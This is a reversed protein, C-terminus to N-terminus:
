DVDLDIINVNMRKLLEERMSPYGKKLIKKAKETTKPNVLLERLRKVGKENRLMKRAWADKDELRERLSNYVKKSIFNKQILYDWAHANLPVVAYSNLGMDKVVQNGGEMRDVYFFVDKITGGLAKIQPVWLDKVSSGENNLDAIHTAYGKIRTLNDEGVTKKNKYLMLHPMDLLPAIPLSFVWDRSEGGTIVGQNYVKKEQVLRAMDVIAQAYFVPNGIIAASQVYYPGIEGSTYPFFTDTFEFGKKSQALFELNREQTFKDSVIEM